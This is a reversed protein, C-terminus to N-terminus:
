DKGNEVGVKMLFRPTDKGRLAQRVVYQAAKIKGRESSVFIGDEYIHWDTPTVRKVEYSHWDIPTVTKIEFRREV